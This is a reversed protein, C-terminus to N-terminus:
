KNYFKSYPIDLHRFDIPHLHKIYLLKNRKTLKQNIFLIYLRTILSFSIVAHIACSIFGTCNGYTKYKTQKHQHKVDWGVRKRDHRFTKSDEQTSGTNLLPYLTKSLYVTLCLM